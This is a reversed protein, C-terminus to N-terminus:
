DVSPESRSGRPVYPRLRLALWKLLLGILMGGGGFGLVFAVMLIVFTTGRGNAFLGILWGAGCFFAFGAFIPILLAVSRYWVGCAIWMGVWIASVVASSVSGLAAFTVAAVAASIAIVCACLAWRSARETVRWKERKVFAPDAYAFEGCEACRPAGEARAAAVADVDYGCWACRHSVGAVVDAAGRGSNM